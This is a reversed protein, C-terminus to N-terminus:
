VRFGEDTSGLYQISGWYRCGPCHWYRTASSFGCHDCKYGQRHAVAGRLLKREPSESDASGQALVAATALTISPLNVLAGRLFSISAEDGDERQIEESLALTLLTSPKRSLYAELCDRYLDTVGKASCVKELLILVDPACEEGEDIIAELHGLALNPNGANLELQALCLRARFSSTSFELAKHLLSRAESVKEELLMDESQECLYHMCLLDAPQGRDSFAYGDTQDIEHLDRAIRIGQEWDRQAEFIELLHRKATAKFDRSERALDVLLREARDFLGASIFDRSLELHSQHLQIPTLHSRVLLNQHIRIARDVEGRKRLVSGLAIHTDLTDENVELAETFADIAGQEEGDLLFNFGRYYQTPLESRQGQIQRVGGRALTWGSAVALFLLALLLANSVLPGQSSYISRM